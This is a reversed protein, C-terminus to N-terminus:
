DSRLKMASWGLIALLALLGLEVRLGLIRDPLFGVLVALYLGMAGISSLPLIRPVQARGAVSALVTPALMATGTFSVRALLVLQDSSVLSLALAAIALAVIAQRARLTAVEEPVDLLARLESGLAFLQSDATSM